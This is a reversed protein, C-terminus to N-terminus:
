PCVNKEVSWQRPQVMYTNDELSLLSSRLSDGVASVWELSEDHISHHVTFLDSV